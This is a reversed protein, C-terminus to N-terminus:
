QKNILVRISRTENGIRLVCLYAGDALGGANLEIQQVGATYINESSTFVEKGLMDYVKMSVPSVEDLSFSIATKRTFPNPMATIFNMTPKGDKV